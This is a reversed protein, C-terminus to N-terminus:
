DGLREINAFLPEFVVELNQKAEVHLQLLEHSDWGRRKAYTEIAQITAACTALNNAIQRLITKVQERDNPM